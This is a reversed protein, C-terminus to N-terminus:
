FLFATVAIVTSLCAVGMAAIVLSRQKAISENATKLAETSEKLAKQVDSLESAHQKIHDEIPELETKMVHNTIQVALKQFWPKMSKYLQVDTQPTPMKELLEDLYRQQSETFQHQSESQTQTFQKIAADISAAIESKVQDQAEQVQQKIWRDMQEAYDDMKPPVTSVEQTSEGHQHPESVSDSESIESESTETIPSPESDLTATESDTTDADGTASNLHEQAIALANSLAEGSAPKPLVACAGHAIAQSIYDEDDKSTYMITPIHSLEPTEKIAKTAELGSMGPMMHDMFIVDPQHTRLMEMASEADEAVEVELGAKQLMRELVKRASRSDDVVLARQVSM